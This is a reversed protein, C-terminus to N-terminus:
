FSKSTYMNTVNLVNLINYLWCSQRTEHKMVGFPFEMGMVCERKGWGGAFMQTSQPNVQEPNRYISAQLINGKHRSGHPIISKLNMWTITQILIENNKKHSFLVIISVHIVINIWKNMSPNQPEKWRKAIIFLAATFMCTCVNTYKRRTSKPKTQEEKVIKM